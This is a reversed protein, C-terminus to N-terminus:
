GAQLFTAVDAMRGAAVEIWHDIAETNLTLIVDSGFRDLLRAHIESVTM